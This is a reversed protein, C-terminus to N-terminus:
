LLPREGHVWLAAAALMAGEICHARGTRIVERVTRCSEGDHEFNQKLAVLYGQVKQPTDLRRLLAFERPTLRLDSERAFRKAPMASFFIVARRRPCDAECSGSKDGLKAPSRGTRADGGRRRVMRAFREPAAMSALSSFGSAASRMSAIASRRAKRDRNTMSNPSILWATARAVQVRRM